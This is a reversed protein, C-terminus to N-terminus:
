RPARALVLDFYALWRRVGETIARCSMTAGTINRIDGKLRLPARATKGIFQKRWAAQRVQDGYAERYELIEVHLVEGTTSLAVSYTIRDHKGIVDDVAFYGLRRDNQLAAWLRLPGTPAPGGTREALTKKLPESLASPLVEFGTAAPFAIKQAEEVTFYRAGWVGVAPLVVATPAIWFVKQFPSRAM